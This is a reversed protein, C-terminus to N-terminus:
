VSTTTLEACHTDTGSDATLIAEKDDAGTDTTLLICFETSVVVTGKGSPRKHFWLKDVLHRREWQLAM